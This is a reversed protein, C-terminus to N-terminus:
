GREGSKKESESGTLITTPNKKLSLFKGKESKQLRQATQTARSSQRRKPTPKRWLSLPEKM